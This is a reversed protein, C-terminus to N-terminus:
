WLSGGSYYLDNKLGRISLQEEASRNRGVITKHLDPVRPLAGMVIQMSTPVGHMCLQLVALKAGGDVVACSPVKATFVNNSIKKLGEPAGQLCGAHPQGGQGSCFAHIRLSETHAGRRHAQIM